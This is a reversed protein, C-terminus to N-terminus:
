HNSRKIAEKMATVATELMDLQSPITLSSFQRTEDHTEDHVILIFPAGKVTNAVFTLLALIDFPSNEEEPDIRRVNLDDM